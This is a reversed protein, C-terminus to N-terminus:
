QKSLRSYQPIKKRWIAHKHRRTQRKADWIAAKGSSKSPIFSHITSPEFLLVQVGCRPSIIFLALHDLTIIWGDPTRFSSSCELVEKWGELGRYWCRGGVYVRFNQTQTSNYQHPDIAKTKWVIIWWLFWKKSNKKFLIANIMMKAVNFVSFYGWFWKKNM